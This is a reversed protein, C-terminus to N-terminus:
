RPHLAKRIDVRNNALRYADVIDQESFKGEIIMGELCHVVYAFAPDNNYRAEANRSSHDMKGGRFRGAGM